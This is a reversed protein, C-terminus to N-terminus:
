QSRLERRLAQVVTEGPRPEIETRNTLGVYGEISGDRRVDIGGHAKKIAGKPISVELRSYVLEIAEYEKFMSDVAKGDAQDSLEHARREVQEFLQDASDFKAKTVTSGERIKLGFKAL